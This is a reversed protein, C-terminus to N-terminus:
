SPAQAGRRAARARQPTGRPLEVRRVPQLRDRPRAWADHNPQPRLDIGRDDAIVRLLFMAGVIALGGIALPLGAAVLSGFVLILLVLTIPFAISEAKVLDSEINEQMQRYIEAFGGVQRHHRRELVTFDPCIEEIRHQVINQDGAIGGLVLAQSGDDSKLSPSAPPGTRISRGSTSPPPSNRPSLWGPPGSRQDDVKGGAADVLLIINPDEVGFREKLDDAAITAESNPIM